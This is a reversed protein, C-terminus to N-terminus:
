SATDSPRNLDGKRKRKFIIERQILFNSVYLIVDAVQKALLPLFHTLTSVNLFLVLGIVTNVCALIAYKVLSKVTDAKNEGVYRFVYRRNLLYGVSAGFLRGLVYAISYNVFIYNNLVLYLANDCLYVILSVSIYRLPQPIRRILSKLKTSTDASAM